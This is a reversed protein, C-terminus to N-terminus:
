VRPAIVLWAWGALFCLGGLPTIAGLWRADTLAMAYLSGSFLVIGAVLLFYSARNNTGFFALAVLAIAHLFHYLVAKNWVELMEVSLKTKLAHAGFAGLAVALFCLGAAVRIIGLRNM